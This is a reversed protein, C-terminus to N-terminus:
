GEGAQLKLMARGLADGILFYSEANGFWHHGHGVNPSAEKPRAFEQTLVFVARPLRGVGRRQAERFAHMGGGAEAPGGNGLEGVVFPLEPLGFEARVDTAFNVLNDEYEAVADRSVMDNWGQMWVFGAIEYPREGLEALAARVEEIM